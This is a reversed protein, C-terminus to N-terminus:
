RFFKIFKFFFKQRLIIRRVLLSLSSLFNHPYFRLFSFTSIFNIITPDKIAATNVSVKDAGNTIKRLPTPIRVTVSM